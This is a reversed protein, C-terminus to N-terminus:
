GQFQHHVSGCLWQDGASVYGAISLLHLVAGDAQAQVAQLRKAGSERGAIEERGEERGETREERLMEQLIM